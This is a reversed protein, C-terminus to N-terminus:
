CATLMESSFFGSRLAANALVFTKCDQM